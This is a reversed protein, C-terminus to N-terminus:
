HTASPNGVGQAALSARVIEQIHARCDGNQVALAAAARYCALAQDKRSLKAYLDGRALQFLPNSPYKEVLPGIVGLAKQALLEPDRFQRAEPNVIMRLRESGGSGDHVVQTFVRCATRVGARARRVRLRRTHFRQLMEVADAIVLLV